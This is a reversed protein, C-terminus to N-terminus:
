ARARLIKFTRSLAAMFGYRMTRRYKKQQANDPSWLPSQLESDLDFTLRVTYESQFDPGLIREADPIGNAPYLNWYKINAHFPIHPKFIGVALFFPEQRGMVIADLTMNAKRALQFDLLQGEPTRTQCAFKINVFQTPDLKTKQRDTTCAHKNQDRNQFYYHNWSLPDDHHLHFVKGGGASYYGNERFIQPITKITKRFITRADLGHSYSNVVHTYDPSLGSLFSARSPACLSYLTYARGLIASGPRSSLADINPTKAISRGYATLEARLDDLILLMVSKPRKKETCACYDWNTSPTARGNGTACWTSSATGTKSSPPSVSACENYTVGNYEFPFVCGQKVNVGWCYTNDGQAQRKGWATQCRAHSNVPLRQCRSSTVSWSCDQTWASCANQDKLLACDFDDDMGASFCTATPQDFCCYNHQSCTQADLFTSCAQGPQTEQARVVFISAILLLVAPFCVLRQQNM